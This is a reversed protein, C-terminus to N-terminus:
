DTNGAVYQWAQELAAPRALILHSGGHVTWLAVSGRTCADYQRTDTENGPLRPELDRAGGDTAPGTCGLRAAWGDFTSAASVYVAGPRHFLTGGEYYVTEDADGHIELVRLHEPAVCTLSPDPGAGAVSVVGALKDGLVCALRHAFFGGNSFGMVFVRKPDIPYRALLDDILTRIRATHDIGQGDFDCCAPHANWYARKARDVDGTPAVVFVRHKQGFSGLRLTDFALKGTAGLGHLFVLLPRQAGANAEPPVYRALEPAPEAASADTRAIEAPPTPRPPTSPPAVPVPSAPIPARPAPPTPRGQGGRDKCGVALALVCGLASARVIRTWHPTKM